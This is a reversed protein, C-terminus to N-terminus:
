GASRNSGDGNGESAEELAGLTLKSVASAVQELDAPSLADFEVLARYGKEGLVRELLAMQAVGDGLQRVDDLYRLAVNLRPKAPVQYVVGDISFLDVMEPPGDVKEPSTLEIM